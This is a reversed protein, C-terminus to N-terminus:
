QFLNLLMKTGLFYLLIVFIKRLTASQMSHTVRAGLPATLMSAIAIWGLAPLYIYGLSSDPLSQAQLMGNIIYGLTGAVAIPFGVAAATGIAYQLKVNCMSLFPVTLLGGGIAVLSSLAGILSGVAIMGVKGPLVHSSTPRIKLWMQTAAYYIFIVFIIGLAQTSLSGALTSGVLTGLIIGPSLYKVIWWNVAGHAHHMRLSALSTFVITAMTTGLALHLIREPPFDQATFIFTLAPVMVLGGGIGLLGALFGITGGLLLYVLWWEM